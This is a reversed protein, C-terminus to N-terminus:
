SDSTPRQSDSVLSKAEALVTEIFEHKGRPITTADKWSRLAQEYAARAQDPEGLHHYVIALWFGGLASAEGPPETAAPQLTELAEQYQGLRVYVGGLTTRYTSQPKLEVAKQAMQLALDPFRAVDGDALMQWATAEVKAPDQGVLDVLRKHHAAVQKALGLEHAARSWQLVYVPRQVRRQWLRAYAQNAENWAGLRLSSQALYALATTDNRSIALIKASGAAAEQWQEADFHLRARLKLLALDSPTNQLAADVIELARSWDANARQQNGLRRLVGSRQALLAPSDPDKQLATEVTVLAAYDRM